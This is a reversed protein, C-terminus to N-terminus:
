SRRAQAWLLADVRARGAVLDAVADAGALRRPDGVSSPVAICRLGAAKAAAIGTPSDEFAVFEDAAFGFTAIARLYLDPAPKHRPVQDGTVILDFRPLVGLRDLHRCVWAGDSSSVVGLPIGRQWAADLLEAIGPRLPEQDALEAKRRLRWALEDQGPARGIRDALEATALLHGDSRGNMATWVTEAFPVRHRAFLDQWSRKAARETDCLLGDFDFLIAKTTM